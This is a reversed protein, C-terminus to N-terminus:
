FTNRHIKEHEIGEFQIHTYLYLAVNYVQRSVLSLHFLHSEM